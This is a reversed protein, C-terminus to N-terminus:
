IEVHGFMPMSYRSGRASIDASYGNGGGCTARYTAREDILLAHPSSPYLANYMKEEHSITNILHYGKKQGKSYRIKSKGSM